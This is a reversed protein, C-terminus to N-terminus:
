ISNIRYGDPRNNKKESRESSANLVTKESREFIM